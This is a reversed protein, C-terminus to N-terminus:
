SEEKEILLTLEDKGRMKNISYWYVWAVFGFLSFAVGMNKYRVSQPVNNVRESAGHATKDHETLAPIVGALKKNSFQRRILTSPMQFAMKKAISHIM